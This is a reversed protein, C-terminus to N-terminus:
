AVKKFFLITSTKNANALERSNSGVPLTDNLFYPCSTYAARM